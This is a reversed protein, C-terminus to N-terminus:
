TNAIDKKTHPIGDQMHSGVTAFTSSAHVIAYAEQAPPKQLTM